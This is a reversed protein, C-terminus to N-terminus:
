GLVVEVETGLVVEVVTGLVVEVVIALVVVVNLLDLLSGLVVLVAMGPVLGVEFNGPQGFDWSAVLIGLDFHWNAVQIGLGSGLIAIQFDLNLDWSAVLFFLSSSVSTRQIMRGLHIM